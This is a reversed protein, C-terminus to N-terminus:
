LKYIIGKKILTITACMTFPNFMKSLLNQPPPFFPVIYSNGIIGRGFIQKQSQVKTLFIRFLKSFLFLNTIGAKASDSVWKKSHIYIAQDSMCLAYSLPLIRSSLNRLAELSVNLADIRLTLLCTLKATAM